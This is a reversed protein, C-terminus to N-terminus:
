KKEKIEVPKKEAIDKLPDKREQDRPDFAPGDSYGIWLGKPWWGKVWSM